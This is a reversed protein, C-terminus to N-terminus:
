ITPPGRDFLNSVQPLAPDHTALSISASADSASFVAASLTVQAFATSHPCFHAEHRSFSSDKTDHVVQGDYQHDHGTPIQEEVPHFVELSGQFNFVLLLPLLLLVIKEAHAREPM